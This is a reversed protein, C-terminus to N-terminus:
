LLKKIESTAKGKAKAEIYKGTIFITMIMGSVGSYDQVEIFFVMFGTAFAVLTGLAILSDMTFMMKYFGRVGSKITRFGFIFIIPFSLVLMLPTMYGMPVITLGFFKESYMIFIIPITLAWVGVLKKKWMWIEPDKKESYSSTSDDFEVGKPEYGAEKVAEELQEETVSDDFEGFGSGMVPNVVVDKAGPLKKLEKEVHASCSACTMGEIKIKVNKM